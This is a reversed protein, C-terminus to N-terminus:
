REKRQVKISLLSIQSTSSNCSTIFFWHNTQGNQHLTSCITSDCIQISVVCQSINRFIRSNYKGHNSILCLFDFDISLIDNIYDHFIICLSQIFYNNDTITCHLLTVQCARYRSDFSIFQFFQSATIGHISQLSLNITHLNGTAATRTSRRTNNNPPYRSDITRVRQINNISHRHSGIDIKKVLVINFGHLHQFISRCCSNITCTTRVANNKNSGLFTFLSSGLETERSRGTKLRQLFRLHCFSGFIFIYEFRTINIIICLWTIVALLIYCIRFTSVPPIFAHLLCCQNM